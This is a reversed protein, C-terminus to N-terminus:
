NNNLINKMGNAGRCFKTGNLDCFSCNKRNQFFPVNKKTSKNIMQRVVELANKIKKDGATIKVCEFNNKKVDKNIIFFAQKINNTSINEQVSYFYKYLALQYQTFSDTKLKNSYFYGATKIDVLLIDDDSDKFIIDISGNFKKYLSLDINGAFFEQKFEVDLPFEHAVYKLNNKEVYESIMDIYRLVNNNYNEKSEPTNVFKVEDENLLELVQEFTLATKSMLSHEVARHFLNGFSMAMNTTRAPFEIEKNENLMGNYQMNYLHECKNFVSLRSYSLSDEKKVYAM